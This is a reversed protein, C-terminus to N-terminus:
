EPYDPDEFEVTHGLGALTEAVVDDVAAVMPEHPWDRSFGVLGASGDLERIRWLSSFFPEAMKILIRCVQLCPLRGGGCDKLVSV